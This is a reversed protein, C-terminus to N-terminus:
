RSNTSGAAVRRSKRAIARKKRKQVRWVHRVCTMSIVLIRERNDDRRLQRRVRRISRFTVQTEKKLECLRMGSTWINVFYHLIHSFCIILDKSKWSMYTCSQFLIQKHQSFFIPLSLPASWGTTNKEDSERTWQKLTLSLDAPNLRM